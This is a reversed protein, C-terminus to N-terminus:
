VPRLIVDKKTVKRVRMKVGNLEFEEGIHFRPWDEPTKETIPEFEKTDPNM